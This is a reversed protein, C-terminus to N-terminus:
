EISNATDKACFLIAFENDSIYNQKKAKESSHDDKRRAVLCDRTKKFCKTIYLQLLTTSVLSFPPAFVSFDKYAYEM